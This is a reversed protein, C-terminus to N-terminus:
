KASSLLRDCCRDATELTCGSQLFRKSSPGSPTSSGLVPEQDCAPARDPSIIAVESVTLICTHGLHQAMEANLAAEFVAKTFQKLMGNEGILDAPKQYHAMVHDLLPQPFAPRKASRQQPNNSVSTYDNLAKTRKM